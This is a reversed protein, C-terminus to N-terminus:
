MKGTLVNINACGPSVHPTGSPPTNKAVANAAAIADIKIPTKALKGIAKAGPIPNFANKTNVKIAGKPKPNDQCAPKAATNTDPIKNKIMEIVPNLFITMLAIGAPNFNATPAPIPNKMVNIPSLFAPIM